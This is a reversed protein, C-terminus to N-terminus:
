CELHETERKKEEERKEWERKDESSALFSFQCHQSQVMCEMPHTLVMRLLACFAWMPASLCVCVCVCVRHTEM